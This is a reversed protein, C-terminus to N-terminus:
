DEKDIDKVTEKEFREKKTLKFRDAIKEKKNSVFEGISNIVKEVPFLLKYTFVHMRLAIIGLMILLLGLLASTVANSLVGTPVACVIEVITHLPIEDQDEPKVIANNEYQYPVFVGDVEEGFYDSPVTVIYSFEIEDDGGTAGDNAQLAYGADNNDWRIVNGSHSDPTPTIDSVWSSQFRSDYTDEVYEIVGAVDSVNRVHITYTIRAATNNNICVVESTKVAAFAPEEEGGITFCNQCADVLGLDDVEASVCYQTSETAADPVQYVIHHQVAVGAEPERSDDVEVLAPSGTTTWNVDSADVECENGNEDAATMIFAVNSGSAVQDGSPSRTVSECDCTGEGITFNIYCGDGGNICGIQQGCGSQISGSPGSGTVMVWASYSGNTTGQPITLTTTNGNPDPSINFGGTVGYDYGTSGINVNATNSVSTTLTVTVDGTRLEDETLTSLNRDSVLSECVMNEEPRDLTFSRVCINDENETWAFVSTSTNSNYLERYTYPGAEGGVQYPIEYDINDGTLIMDPHRWKQNLEKRASVEVTYTGYGLELNSFVFEPVSCEYVRDHPNVNWDLVRGEGYQIRSDSWKDLEFDQLNGDNDRVVDGNEDYLTFKFFLASDDYSIISAKSGENVGEYESWNCKDKLGSDGNCNIVGPMTTWGEASVRVESSSYDTLDIRKCSHCSDYDFMDRTSGSSDYGEAIGAAAGEGKWQRYPDPGMAKLLPTTGETDAQLHVCAVYLNGDGLGSYSSFYENTADGCARVDDYNCWFYSSWAESEEPTVEEEKGLRLGIWIAAGGLAATIIFVFVLVVKSKKM